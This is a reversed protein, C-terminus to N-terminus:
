QPGDSGAWWWNHIIDCDQTIQGAFRVVPNQELPELALYGPGSWIGSPWQSACQFIEAWWPAHARQYVNWARHLEAASPIREGRKLVERCRELGGNYAFRAAGVSQALTVRTERNLDLELCFGQIGRM